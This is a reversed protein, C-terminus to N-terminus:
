LQEASVNSSFYACTGRFKAPRSFLPGVFQFSLFHFLEPFDLETSQRSVQLKVEHKVILHSPCGLIPVVADSVCHM